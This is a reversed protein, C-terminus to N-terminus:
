VSRFASGVDGQDRRGWSKMVRQLSSGFAARRQVMNSQRKRDWIAGEGSPTFAVFEDNRPHITMVVSFLTGVFNRTSFMHIVKAVHRVPRDSTQTQPCFWLLLDEVQRLSLPYRIYIMM